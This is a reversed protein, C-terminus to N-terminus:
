LRRVYQELAESVTVRREPHPDQPGEAALPAAGRLAEKLADGSAHAEVGLAGPPWQGAWQGTPKINARCANAGNALVGM